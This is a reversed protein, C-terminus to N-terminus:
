DLIRPKVGHQLVYGLSTTVQLAVHADPSAFAALPMGQLVTHVTCAAGERDCLLDAVAVPPLVFMCTFLFGFIGDSACCFVVSCLLM